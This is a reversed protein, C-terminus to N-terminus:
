EVLCRFFLCLASFILFLVSFLIRLIKNSNFCCWDSDCLPVHRGHGGPGGPGLPSFPDRPLLPWFPSWPIIPNGPFLPLCPIMPGAPRFPSTPTLPCFPSMPGAPMGPLLPSGPSDIETGTTETDGLVSITLSPPDAENWHEALALGLAAIFHLLSFLWDCILGEVTDLPFSSKFFTAAFSAPFYLQEATLM